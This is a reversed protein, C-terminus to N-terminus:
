CTCQVACMQRLFVTVLSKLATKMRWCCVFNVTSQWHVHLHYLRTLLPQPGGSDTTKGVEIRILCNDSSTQKRTSILVLLVTKKIETCFLNNIAASGNLHINVINIWVIELWFIVLKGVSNEAGFHQDELSRVNQPSTQNMPNVFPKYLIPIGYSKEKSVTQNM